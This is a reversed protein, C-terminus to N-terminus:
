TLLRNLVGGVGVLRRLEDVDGITPAGRKVVAISMNKM